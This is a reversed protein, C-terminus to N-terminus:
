FMWRGGITIQRAGQLATPAKYAVNEGAITTSPYRDQRITVATTNFLNTIDTYIGFRHGQIRLAKEARLDFQNFFDNRESGRPALFIERRSSGPLNLDSSAFRTYPTYPRGSQGTYVAGLLVDARPITYSVDATIEHRRSNTLEGFRNITGTNPSNWATGNLWNGFGTNDVTGEAKALVYSV